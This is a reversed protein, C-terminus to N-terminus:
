LELIRKLFSIAADTEIEIDGSKLLGAVTEGEFQTVGRSNRGAWHRLVVTKDLLKKQFISVLTTHTIKTPDIGVFYFLFVSRDTALFELMKDLNYAKPNSNLVMIKTKVDTETKFEPFDRSYDGLQNDTRFEPLNQEGNKLADIIETRLKEDEGAILYEIIRGRVNVNEILGAIVIENKFKEVKDDLEDKLEAFSESYVFKDARKPSGLITLIQDHSPEFKKGTPSIANTQEVLRPLNEEFGLEAHINYLSEFNAPQNVIGDLERTIDSGNFSGRINNVRLEQSSHSIKKLFTTNALFLFNKSPTVLCIIFPRHDYKQLNSLSLVTNSFSSSNAKSFRLGFDDNYYVSRDRTLSFNEQVLGTLKVKDNIGDYEHIFQILEDFKSKRLCIEMPKQQSPIM